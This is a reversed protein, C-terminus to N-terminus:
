EWWATTGFQPPPQTSVALDGAVMQGLVYDVRPALVEQPSVDIFRGQGSVEREYLAAVVCLAADLASEYSALFRGPGKLPPSSPPSASPTHFAWGSSHMVNLDEAHGREPPASQGYATLACLVLAPHCQSLQGPDLGILESARRTPVSRTM